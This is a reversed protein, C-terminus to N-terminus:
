KRRRPRDEEEEKPRPQFGTDTLIIEEKVGSPGHRNKIAVIVREAKGDAYMVLTMDVDHQLALRGAFFDDKTAHDIVIAHSRNKTVHQKLARLVQMGGADNGIGVMGPLSDLIILECPAGDLAADIWGGGLADFIEVKDTLGPINLREARAKIDTESEEAAIYLCSSVDGGATQLCLTSKGTGPEGGLM